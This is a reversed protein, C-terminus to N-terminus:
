NKKCPPRNTAINLRVALVVSCDPCLDRHIQHSPSITRIPLHLGEQMLAQPRKPTQTCFTYFQLWVRYFDSCYIHPKQSWLMWLSLSHILHEWEEKLHLQRAQKSAGPEPRNKMQKPSSKPCTKLLKGDSPCQKTQNAKSMRWRSSLLGIYVEWLPWCCFSRFFTKLQCLPPFQWSSGPHSYSRDDEVIYRFM